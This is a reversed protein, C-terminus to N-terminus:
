GGATWAPTAAWGAPTRSRYAASWEARRTTRASCRAASTATSGLVGDQGHFQSSASRSWLSLVGGSSTARNLALASGGVLREGGLGMAVNGYGTGAPHLGQMGGANMPVGATNQPGLRSTLASNSGGAATMAGAGSGVQQLFDLAFDRGTGSNIRRGAVRGDFGPARPANM